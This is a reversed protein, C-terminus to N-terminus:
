GPRNKLNIFITGEDNSTQWSHVQNWLLSFSNRQNVELSGATLIIAPAGTRIRKYLPIFSFAMFIIMAAILGGMRLNLKGEVALFVIGGALGIILLIFLLIVRNKNYRLEVPLM